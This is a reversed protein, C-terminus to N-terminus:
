RAHALARWCDVLVIDDDYKSLLVAIPRFAIVVDELSLDRCLILYAGVMLAANTATRPDRGACLVVTQDHTHRLSSCVRASFRYLADLGLPHFDFGVGIESDKSSVTGPILLANRLRSPLLDKAYDVSCLMFVLRDDIQSMLVSGLLRKRDM